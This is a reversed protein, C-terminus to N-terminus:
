TAAHIRIGSAHVQRAELTTDPHDTFMGDVGADLFALAEDIADGRDAPDEGRRYGTPLFANEDRLTWVHVLLGVAHADAVLSSPAGIAGIGPTRPLVLDKAVGVADAWAATRRLGAPTLLDVRGGSEVLQVLPLRTRSRLRQLSHPDFSQVFVPAAPGGYGHRDLADLLPEELGLGLAAHHAPHKTEPYVGIPRGLRESEEAVLGLIEEFTPVEYRGDYRTNHARLGPLREVARLTKLESLLFDEAFWGSVQRGDIEKTTIRDAFEGRRAVNTTTSLDAEHRAVLVGDKTSVLDPEVYDAGLAIALRYSALTHEPRYGSAGRHAIVIPQGV